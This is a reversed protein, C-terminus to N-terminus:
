VVYNDLVLVQIEQVKGLRRDNTVFLTAALEIAAAIQLADPVHIDYRARLTLARRALQVDIPLMTVQQSHLLSREYAQVLDTRGHRQPYICSEILTIVSTVGRVQPSKLYQFLVEALPFYQPHMEWLYIFPSTDVGITTHSALHQELGGM